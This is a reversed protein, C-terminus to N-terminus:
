QMEILRDWAELLPPHPIRWLTIHVRAGAQYDRHVVANVVAERIAEM